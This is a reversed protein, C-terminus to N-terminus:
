PDRIAARDPQQGNKEGRRTEPPWTATVTLRPFSPTLATTSTPNFAPARPTLALQRERHRTSHMKSGASDAQGSRRSGGGQSVADRPSKTKTAIGANHNRSGGYLTERIYLPTVHPSVAPPRVAGPQWVHHALDKAAQKHESANPNIQNRRHRFVEACFSCKCFHNHWCCGKAGDTASFGYWAKVRSVKRPVWGPSRRGWGM